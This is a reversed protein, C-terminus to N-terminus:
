ICFRTCFFLDREDEAIEAEPFADRLDSIIGSTIASIYDAYSECPMPLSSFDIYIVDHDGLHQMAQEDKTVDLGEFLAEAELGRSLFCALTRANVTKGFRRPRTICFYTQETGIYPVLSSIFGTKDVFYTSRTLKQFATKSSQANIYFM